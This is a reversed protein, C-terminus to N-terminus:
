RRLLNVPSSQCSSRTDKQQTTTKRKLGREGVNAYRKPMLFHVAFTGIYMVLVAVVGAPTNEPGITTLIRGILCSRITRATCTVERNGPM